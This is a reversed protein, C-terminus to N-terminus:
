NRVKNLCNISGRRRAHIELENQKLINEASIFSRMMVRTEACKRVKQKGQTDHRLIMGAKNEFM